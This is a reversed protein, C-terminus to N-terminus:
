QELILLWVQGFRNVGGEIEVVSWVSDYRGRLAPLEVGLDFYEYFDCLAVPRQRRILSPSM